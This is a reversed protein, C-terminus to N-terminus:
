VLELGGSSAEGSRFMGQREALWLLGLTTATMFLALFFMLGWDGRDKSVVTM